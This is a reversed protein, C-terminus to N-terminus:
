ETRAPRPAAPRKLREPDELVVSDNERVSKPQEVDGEAVVPVQRQSLRVVESTLRIVTEGIRNQEELFRLNAEMLRQASEFATDREYQLRDMKEQDAQTFFRM